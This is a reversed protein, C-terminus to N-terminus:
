GSTEGRFLGAAARSNMQSELKRLRRDTGEEAMEKVVAMKALVAKRAGLLLAALLYSFDSHYQDEFRDRCPGFPEDLAYVGALVDMIHRDSPPPQTRSEVQTCYDMELAVADDAVRIGLQKWSRILKRKGDRHQRTRSRGATVSWLGYARCAFPRRPYISCGGEAELFPCGAQRLPTALYFSLFRLLLADRRKEPMQAMADIWQLAELLTMEPM